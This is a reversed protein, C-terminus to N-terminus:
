TTQTPTETTSMAPRTKTNDMIEMVRSYITLRMAYNGLDYKL